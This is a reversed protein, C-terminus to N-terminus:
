LGPLAPTLLAEPTLGRTDDMLETCSLVGKGGVCVIQLVSVPSSSNPLLWLNEADNIMLEEDPLDIM